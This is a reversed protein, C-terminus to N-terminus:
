EASKAEGGIALKTCNSYFCTRGSDGPTIAARASSSEMPLHLLAPTFLLPDLPLLTMSSFLRKISSVQLILHSLLYERVKDHRKRDTVRKWRRLVKLLPFLRFFPITRLARFLTAERQWTVLSSSETYGDSFNRVIGFASMIYMESSPTNLRQSDNHIVLQYPEYQKSTLDSKLYFFRNEGGRAFYKMVDDGTNPSNTQQRTVDKEILLSASYVSHKLSWMLPQALMSSSPALAGDTRVPHIM